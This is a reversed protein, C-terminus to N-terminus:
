GKPSYSPATTSPRMRKAQPRLLGFYAKTTDFGFERTTLVCSCMDAPAIELPAVPAALLVASLAFPAGKTM